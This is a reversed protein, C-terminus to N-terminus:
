RMRKLIFTMGGTAPLTVGMLEWGQAGRANLMSVADQGAPVTTTAYEWAARASHVLVPPVTPHSADGNIVEVRLPQRASIEQLDVPVAEGSGRNDIKVRAETMQGPTLTTQQGAVLASATAVFAGLGFAAATHLTM